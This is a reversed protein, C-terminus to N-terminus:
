EEWKIIPCAKTYITKIMESVIILGSYRFIFFLVSRVLNSIKKSHTLSLYLIWGAIGLTALAALVDRILNYWGIKEAFILADVVVGVVMSGFLLLMFIKGVIKGIKNLLDERKYRRVWEEDTRQRPPKSPFLDIMKMFGEVILYIPIIVPSFIIMTVLSWFYPCLSKPERTFVIDYYRYHWSKKNLTIQM